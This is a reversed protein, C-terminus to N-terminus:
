EPHQTEQSRSSQIDAAAEQKLEYCSSAANWHTRRTRAHTRAHATLRLVPCRAWTPFLGPTGRDLVCHAHVFVSARAPLHPPDTDSLVGTSCRDWRSVVCENHICHNCFFFFFVRIIIICLRCCAPFSFHKKKHIRNKKKKKKCM